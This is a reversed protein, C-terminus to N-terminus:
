LTVDKAAIKRQEAMAYVRRVTRINAGLVVIGILGGLGLGYWVGYPQGTALALGGAMLLLASITLLTGHVAMGVGKFLGQPGLVGVLAGWIGVSVGLFTGPIWAYRIPDFWPETM